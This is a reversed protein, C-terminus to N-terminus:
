KRDGSSPPIENEAESSVKMGPGRFAESKVIAHIAQRLTPQDPDMSDLIAQLLPRDAATLRRGLAYATLRKVLIRTFADQRELAEVLDVLGTLETGDPLTGGVDVPRGDVEERLRGLADYRELSFGLPDMVTHCSICQPQDRHAELRQRLSVEKSAPTEDLLGADAPPPPPAAGLLTDLIWRGRRVPSTRTPMSTASLISAHGLVGRRTTEQLSVRQWDTGESWPMGYHEALRRDLFTYDANLLLRLDQDGQLLDDGLRLTEEIMAVRLEADMEPYLAEDFEQGTLARIRFNQALFDELWARRRPDALMRDVMAELAQDDRHWGEQGAMALLPGDPLSSWLFRGLRVAVAAEEELGMGRGDFLFYPSTLIATLTWRVTDEWSELHSTMKQLRKWEARQAERGWARMTLFKVLRPYDKALAPHERDLPFRRLLDEQFATPKPPNLPGVLHFSSVYLNRDKPTGEPADPMWYDNLFRVAFRHEGADLELELVFDSIEGDPTEVAVQEKVRADVLLAARAFDDGAQQAHMVITLRYSGAQELRVHATANGTSWLAADGGSHNPAEIDQGSWTWTQPQLDREVVAMEVVTEAAALYRSVADEAMTLSAGVNDFGDGTEDQPLSDLVEAPVEVGLWDWMAHRYMSRNMRRLVPVQQPPAVGLGQEADLWALFRQRAEESPQAEHRPPPMARDWTKWGAAWLDEPAARAEEITLFRGLDLEAEAGSGEHCHLCHRDLYDLVDEAFDPEQAAAQPSSLLLLISPIWVRRLM